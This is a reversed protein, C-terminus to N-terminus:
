GLETWTQGSDHSTLQYNTGSNLTVTITLNGNVTQSIQPPKEANPQSPCALKQLSWTTGGDNTRYVWVSHSFGTVEVILGQTATWFIMTPDGALDPFVQDTQFSYNILSWRTGSDTSRFLYFPEQVTAPSAGALVWNTNETDASAMWLSAQLTARHYMLHVAQSVTAVPPLSLTRLARSLSALASRPVNVQINYYYGQASLEYVQASATQNVSAITETFYPSQNRPDRTLAATNKPVQPVLLGSSLGMADTKSVQVQKGLQWGKPVRISIGHAQLISTAPSEAHNSVAASSPGTSGGAVGCGSLFLATTVAWLCWPRNRPVRM